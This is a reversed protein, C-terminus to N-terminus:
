FDGFFTFFMAKEDNEDGKESSLGAPAFFRLYERAGV